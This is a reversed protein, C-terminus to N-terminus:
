RSLGLLGIEAVEIFLCSWTKLSIMLLKHGATGLIYLYAIDSSDLLQTSERGSIWVEWTVQM